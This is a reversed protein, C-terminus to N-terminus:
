LSCAGAFLARQTNANAGARAIEPRKAIGIGWFFENPSGARLTRENIGTVRKRKALIHAALDVHLRTVTSIRQRREALNAARDKIHKLKRKTDEGGNLVEQM